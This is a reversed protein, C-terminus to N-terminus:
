RVAQRCLGTHSVPYLTNVSNVKYEPKNRFVQFIGHLSASSKKKRLHTFFEITNCEADAGVKEFEEDDIRNMQM